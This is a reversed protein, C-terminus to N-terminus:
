HKNNDKEKYKQSHPPGNKKGSNEKHGKDKAQKGNNPGHSKSNKKENNNNSNSGKNKEGQEQQNGNNRQNQRSEQKGAKKAQGSPINKMEKELPKKQTAAPKEQKKLLGPSIESPKDNNKHNEVKINPQDTSAPKEKKSPKKSDANLKSEKYLGTTQGNEIATERDEETGEFVMVKLQETQATEKIVELEAELQKDTEIKDETFVTAIVIEKNEALYGQKKLQHFIEDTVDQISKKKWDQISQVIREGDENFPELKIVQYKENVGLEISPNVDISMYAYVEDNQYFPLFSVVALMLAFAAAFVAKGKCVNILSLPSSKNESKQEIPFFDIEQGIAYVRNQKRARLFEGEPTLMTLFRENIELIIGTKM